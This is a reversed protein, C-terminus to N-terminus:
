NTPDDLRVTGQFPQPGQTIREQSIYCTRRSNNPSPIVKYAVKMGTITGTPYGPKFPFQAWIFSNEQIPKIARIYFKGNKVYFKAKDTITHNPERVSGKLPVRMTEKCVPPKVTFKPNIKAVRPKSIQANVSFTLSLVLGLILFKLTKM